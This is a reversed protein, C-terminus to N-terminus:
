VTVSTQAGPMNCEPNEAQFSFKIFFKQHQLKLAESEFTPINWSFLTLVMAASAGARQKALDEAYHYQRGDVESILWVKTPLLSTSWESATPADGTLAAGVVDENEDICM